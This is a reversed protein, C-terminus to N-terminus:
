FGAFNVMLMDVNIAWNFCLGTICVFILVWTIGMKTTILHIGFYFTPIAILAGVACVIADARQTKIVRFPGQGSKM